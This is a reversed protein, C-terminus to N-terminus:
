RSLTYSSTRRRARPHAQTGILQAVLRNLQSQPARHPQPRAARKAARRMRGSRVNQHRALLRFLMPILSAAGLVFICLTGLVVITNFQLEDQRQVPNLPAPIVGGDPLLDRILPSVRAIAAISTAVNACRGSRCGGFNIAVVHGSRADFIPSGSSGPESDCSHGLAARYGPEQVIKCDNQSVQLPKGRPHGILIVDDGPQPQSVSLTVAGYVPVTVSWHEFELIAYDLDGSAEVINPKLDVPTGGFRKGLYGMTITQPTLPTGDKAHVCHWNTAVYRHSLIFATCTYSGGAADSVRLLGVPSALTRLDSRSPLDRVLEREDRGIVGMPDPLPNASVTGTATHWLCSLSLATLALSSARAVM